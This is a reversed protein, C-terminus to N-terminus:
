AASVGSVSTFESESEVAAESKVLDAAEASELDEADQLAYEGDDIPEDDQSQAFLADQQQKYQAAAIQLRSLREGVATAYAIADTARKHSKRLIGRDSSETHAPITIDTEVGGQLRTVIKEAVSVSRIFGSIHGYYRKRGQSLDRIQVYGYKNGTSTNNVM